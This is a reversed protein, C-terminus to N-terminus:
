RVANAGIECILEMDRDWNEPGAAAFVGASDQHKAVGNLKIHDGNLFFGKESDLRISRFGVRKEVKDIARGEDLLTASLTYVYPDNRGNWRM